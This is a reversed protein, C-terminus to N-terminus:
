RDNMLIRARCKYYNDFDGVATGRKFEPACSVDIQAKRRMFELKSLGYKRAEAADELEQEIPDLETIGFNDLEPRVLLRIREPPVRMMADWLAPSVNVEELYEKALKALRRQEIQVSQYDRKETSSSFPRHIAIRGALVRRVAGALVFVCSSLCESQDWMLTTAAIRRLHRGIAIAAEVDGGKSNLYFFPTAKTKLRQAIRSLEQADAESIFGSIEWCLGNPCRQPDNISIVAGFSPLACGFLSTAVVIRVCSAAAGLMNCLKWSLSPTNTRAAINGMRVEIVGLTYHVESIGDIIASGSTPM